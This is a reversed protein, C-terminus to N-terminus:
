IDAYAMKDMNEDLLEGFHMNEAENDPTGRGKISHLGRQYDAPAKKRPYKCRSYQRYPYYGKQRCITEPFLFFNM